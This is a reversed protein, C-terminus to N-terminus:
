GRGASEGAGAGQLVLPLGQAAQLGLEAVPEVHGHGLDLVLVEPLARAQGDDGDVGVVAM